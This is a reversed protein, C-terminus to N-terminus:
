APVLRVPCYLSLISKSGRPRRGSRGSSRPRATTASRRAAGYRRPACRRATTAPVAACTLLRDPARDRLLVAIAAAVERGLDAEDVTSGALRDRSDILWDGARDRRYLVDLFPGIGRARGARRRGRSGGRAPPRGPRGATAVTRPRATGDRLVSRGARWRRGCHVGTGRLGGPGATGANSPTLRQNPPRSRYVRRIQRPLTRRGTGAPGRSAARGSLLSFPVAPDTVAQPTLTCM